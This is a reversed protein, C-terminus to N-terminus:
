RAAASLRRRAAGAAALVAVVVACGAAGCVSLVLWVIVGLPDSALIPAAALVVAPGFAFLAGLWRRLRLEGLVVALLLTCAAGGLLRDAGPPSDENLPWWSLWASWAAGGLLAAIVAWARQAHPLTRLLLHLASIPATLVAGAATAYLLATPLLDVVSADQTLAASSLLYALGAATASTATGTFPRTCRDTLVTAAALLLTLLTWPIGTGHALVPTLAWRWLLLVATTAATAAAALVMRRAILQTFTTPLAQM